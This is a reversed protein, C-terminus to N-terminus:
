HGAKLALEYATEGEKNKALIDIKVNKVLYELTEYQGEHAAM